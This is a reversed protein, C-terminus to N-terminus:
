CYSFDVSIKITTISGKARGTETNPGTVFYDAELNVKDCTCLDDKSNFRPKYKDQKTPQNTM